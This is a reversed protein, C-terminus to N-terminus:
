FEFVSKVVSFLSGILNILMMLIVIVGTLSTLAALDDKGSSKLLKDLIVLLIATAGIKFILSVDLM